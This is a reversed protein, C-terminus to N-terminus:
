ASTLAGGTGQRRADLLTLEEQLIAERPLMDTARGLITVITAIFAGEEKINRAQAEQLVAIGNPAAQQLERNM